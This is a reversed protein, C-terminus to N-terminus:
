PFHHETGAPDVVFWTLVGTMGPLIEGPFIQIVCQPAAKGLPIAVMWAQFKCASRGANGSILRVRGESHGRYAM